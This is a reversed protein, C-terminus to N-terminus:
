NRQEYQELMALADNTAKTHEVIKGYPSSSAMSMVFMSFFAISVMALTFRM